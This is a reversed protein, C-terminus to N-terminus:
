RERQSVASHHMEVGSLERAGQEPTVGPQLRAIAEMFHAGRSHQTLNWQLRLWVDVDDPFHFGPPMVGAIAYKGDNVELLRGVISADADFRQRWLRDSIVAIQERSYFPGDQPFGPGLQPSAGLVQFLNASTEITSVRVPDSGPRYLSAEPRWWAAADAFVRDLARYDMFNVPSLREKPLAQEANTEWIAVLRDPQRYPLPKLLVTDVVSFIATAAGAGLGLTAIALAAFSPARRLQRWAFRLDGGLGTWGRGPPSVHPRAEPARSRSAPVIALPAEALAAEAARRAEADSRGARRADLYIDELHAALEDVAHQALAAAGTRRAQEVVLAKWDPRSTM